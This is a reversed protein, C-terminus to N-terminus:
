AAHAKEWTSLKAVIDNASSSGNTGTVKLVQASAATVSTVSTYKTIVATGFRGKAIVHYSTSSVRIITLEVDWSVDNYVTATTDFVLTGGWYARIRKTNTNAGTVGAFEALLKDKDAGLTGGSVTYSHLDTETTNAGTGADNVKDGRVDRGHKSAQVLEAAFILPALEDNGDFAASAEAITCGAAWELVYPRVDTDGATLFLEVWAYPGSNVLFRSDKAAIVTGSPSLLLLTNNECLIWGIWHEEDPEPAVDSGYLNSGDLDSTYIPTMDVWTSGEVGGSASLVGHAGIDYNADPTTAISTKPAALAVSSDDTSGVSGYMVKAFAYRCNGSLPAELYFSAGGPATANAISLVRKGNVVEITPYTTGSVAYTQGSDAVRAAFDGLVAQTFDDYVESRVATTGDGDDSGTACGDYRWGDVDAGVWYTTDPELGTFTATGDDQVVATDIAVASPAGQLSPPVAEDAYIGVTQGLGFRTLDRYVLSAM